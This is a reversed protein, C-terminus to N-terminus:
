NQTEARNESAYGGDNEEQEPETGVPVGCIEIPATRDWLRKMSHASAETKRFTLATNKRYGHLYEITLIPAIM